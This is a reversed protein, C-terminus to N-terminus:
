ETIEVKKVRLPEAGGKGFDDCNLLLVRKLSHTLLSHRMMVKTKDQAIAQYCHGLLYLDNLIQEGGGGGWYVSAAIGRVGWRGRTHQFCSNKGGGKGRSSISFAAKYITNNFNSTQKAM